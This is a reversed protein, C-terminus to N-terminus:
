NLQPGTLFRAAPVSFVPLFLNELMKGSSSGGSSHSIVSLTCSVEPHCSLLSAHGLKLVRSHLLGSVSNALYVDTLTWVMLFAYQVEKEMGWTVARIMYVQPLITAAKQPHDDVDFQRSLAGPKGNHSGPHYSLSFEFCNFFLAWRANRSNLRKVGDPHVDSEQSQDLCDRGGVALAEM